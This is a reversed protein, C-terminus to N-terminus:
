RSLEYLYFENQKVRENEEIVTEIATIPVSKGDKGGCVTDVCRQGWDIVMAAAELYFRRM